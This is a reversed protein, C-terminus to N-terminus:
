VIVKTLNFSPNLLLRSSDMAVGVVQVFVNGSSPTAVPPTPTPRGDAGLFHLKGPLFGSGSLLGYRLIRCDTPTSKIVIVGVGPMKHFDTIDAKTVQILGGVSDGSVYVVDGVSDSSLCNADIEFGGLSLEQLSLIESGEFDGRWTGPNSGYIIRKIQSLVFEQLDEQTISSVLSNLIESATKQDDTRDAVRVARYRVKTEGM